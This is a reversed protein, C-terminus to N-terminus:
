NTNALRRTFDRKALIKVTKAIIYFDSILKLILPV